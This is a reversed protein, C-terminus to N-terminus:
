SHTLERSLGFRLTFSRSGLALICAAVYKVEFVNIKHPCVDRRSTSQGNGQSSTVTLNLRRIIPGLDQYRCVCENRYDHFLQILLTPYIPKLATNSM